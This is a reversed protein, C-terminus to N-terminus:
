EEPYLPSGQTERMAQYNYPYFSILYLFAPCTTLAQDTPCGKTERVAETGVLEFAERVWM